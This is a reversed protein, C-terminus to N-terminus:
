TRQCLPILCGAGFPHDVGLRREVSGLAHEFIEGAVGVADRDRVMPQEMDIVLGHSEAVLVIASPSRPGERERESLESAAEQEVDEGLAEDTDAVIPEEGVAAARSQEGAATAREALRLIRLEFSRGLWALVVLGEEVKQGRAEAETGVTSATRHPADLHESAWRRAM